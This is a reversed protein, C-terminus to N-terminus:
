SQRQELSKLQRGNAAFNSPDLWSEFAAKRALWEGDLMAFWATDRNRGKIVMHQGFIGEFTFGLRQAARRSPANEANCKWEYRRYGLDDFIHRAMLYMAETAATTRQLAPSYVINGVEIVGHAPEIRLYSAYGACHGTAAPVIAFFIQDTTVQKRALAATFEAETAFPGDFMWQWLEDHGQVARWLSAAHRAADLPELVVTRGYMPRRHPLSVPKWNALSEARMSKLTAPSTTTIPSYTGLRFSDSKPLQMRITWMQVPFGRIEVTSRPQKRTTAAM